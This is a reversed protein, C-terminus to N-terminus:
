RDVLLADERIVRKIEDWCEQCFYSADIVTGAADALVIQRVVDVGNCNVCTM